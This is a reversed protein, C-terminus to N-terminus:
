DLKIFQGIWIESKDTEGDPTVKVTWVDDTEYEIFTRLDNSEWTTRGELEIRNLASEFKQNQGPIKPFGRDVLTYNINLKNALNKVVDLHDQIENFRKTEDLKGDGNYDYEYIYEGGSKSIVAVADVKTRVIGFGQNPLASLITIGPIAVYKLRMNNTNLTIHNVDMRIEKLTLSEEKLYNNQPFDFGNENYNFYNNPVYDKFSLNYDSNKTIKPTIKVIKNLREDSEVEILYDFGKNDKWHLYIVYVSRQFEGGYVKNDFYFTYDNPVQIKKNLIDIIEGRFEGEPGNTSSYTKNLQVVPPFVYKVLLMTNVSVFVVLLVILWAKWTKSKM